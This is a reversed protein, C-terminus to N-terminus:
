MNKHTKTTYLAKRLHIHIHEWDFKNFKGTTTQLDVSTTVNASLYRMTAHSRCTKKLRKINKITNNKNPLTYISAGYNITKLHEDNTTINFVIAIFRQKEHIYFVHAGSPLQTQPTYTGHSLLLQRLKMYVQSWETPTFPPRVSETAMNMTTVVPMYKYRQAAYNRIQKKLKKSTPKDTTLTYVCAGYTLNFTDLQKQQEIKFVVCIMRKKENFYTTKVMENAVLIPKDSSYKQM